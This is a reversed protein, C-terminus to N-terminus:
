FLNWLFIRRSPFVIRSLRHPHNLYIARDLWERDCGAKHSRQEGIAELTTSADTCATYPALTADSQEVESAIVFPIQSGSRPVPFLGTRM